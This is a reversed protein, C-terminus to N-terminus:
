NSVEVAKRIFDTGLDNTATLTVNFTGTTGYTHQANACGGSSESQDLIAGDGFDWFCSVIPNGTTLNIFDVDLGRPLAIFDAVPAGINIRVVFAAELQTGSIDVTQARVNFSRTGLALIDDSTLILSDSAQGNENTTRVAGGSALSGAEALFNVPADAVGRGVDDQVLALLQLTGGDPGVSGPSVQLSIFSVLGRIGIETTAELLAAGETAGFATVTIVDAGLAIIDIETVVLRDRAEGRENTLLAAGRSDLTGASTSFNVALNPLLQGADDRVVALLDVEGGSEGVSTPSAQLTMSSALSGIQVDVSVPAVPGTSASVTAIGIQGAGRLTTRAVGTNDTPADEPDIEGLSTSFNVVTGPNVPAGNDRRVIATVTAQGDLNIRTPNVSLTITTGAPAVPSAKDCAPSLLLGATLLLAWLIRENM